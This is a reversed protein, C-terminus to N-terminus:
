DFMIQAIDRREGGVVDHYLRYALCPLFMVLFLDIIAYLLVDLDYPLLLYALGMAVYRGFAYVLTAGWVAKNQKSMIRVSYSLAINLHYNESYKLPLALLLLMFIWACLLKLVFNIALGVIAVVTINEVGRLIYMVGVSLLLVIESVAFYCVILLLTVPFLRFSRKFPLASMEGVHMHRNIKVILMSITLAMLLLIAVGVVGTWWHKIFRMVTLSRTFVPFMVDFSTFQGSFLQYWLDVEQRPNAFFAMLVAVPLAVYFLNGFNRFMYATSSKSQFRM